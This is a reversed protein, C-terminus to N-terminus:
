PIVFAAISFLTGRGSVFTCRISPSSSGSSAADRMVHDALIAATNYSKRTRAFSEAVPRYLADPDAEFRALLARAGPSLVTIQPDAVPRRFVSQLDILM